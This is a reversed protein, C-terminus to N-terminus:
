NTFTWPLERAFAEKGTIDLSRVCGRRQEPTLIQLQAQLRIKDHIRVVLPMSEACERDAAM